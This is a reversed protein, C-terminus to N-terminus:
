EELTSIEIKKCTKALVKKDQKILQSLTKKM